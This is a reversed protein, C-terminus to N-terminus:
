VGCVGLGLSKGERQQAVNVAADDSGIADKILGAIHGPARSKHYVPVADEAPPLDALTLHCAVSRLNQADEVQHGLQPGCSISPALRM